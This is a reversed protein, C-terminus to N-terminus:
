TPAMTFEHPRRQPKQMAVFLSTISKGAHGGLSVFHRQATLLTDQDDTFLGKKM